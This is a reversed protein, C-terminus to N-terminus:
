KVSRWGEETVWYGNRSPALYGAQRRRRRVDGVPLSGILYRTMLHRM